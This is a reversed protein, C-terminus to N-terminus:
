DGVPREHNRQRLWPQHESPSRQAAAELAGVQDDVMLDFHAIKGGGARWPLVQHVHNLSQPAPRGRRVSVSRM